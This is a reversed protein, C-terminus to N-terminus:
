LRSTSIAAHEGLQIGKGQDTDFRNGNLHLDVDGDPERFRNQDAQRFHGDLLANVADLPGQGVEAIGAMVAAGDDVQGRGVQGFTGAAEIQGDGQAQEHGGSLHQGFLDAIEGGDAFQGQVAADTRDLAGQGHGHGCGLAFNRAHQHGCGIGAFGGHDLLDGNVADAAQGLGDADQRSLEFALRGGRVDFFKEAFQVGVIDIKGVDAALLEGLPGQHDGGGASM